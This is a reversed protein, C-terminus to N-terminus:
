AYSASLVSVAGPATNGTPTTTVAYVVGLSFRLGNAHDDIVLGSAPIPIVYTPATTGLTVDTLAAADFLQLYAKTTDTNEVNIKTLYTGGAKLLEATGTVSEDFFPITTGDIM